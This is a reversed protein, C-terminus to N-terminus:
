RRRRRRRRGATRRAADAAAERWRPDRVAAAATAYTKRARESRVIEVAGLAAAFLLERGRKSRLTLLLLKVLLTM